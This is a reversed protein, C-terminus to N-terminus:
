GERRAADELIRVASALDPALHVRPADVPPHPTDGNRPVLVAGACGARLALGADRESDGIVWSRALDAGLEDRARWLLGPEPKRCECGHDPAHPCRYAREIQVGASELDGLLRRQFTEFDSEAFIGRGIGSQNTVIALRYGARRLAALAPAVSSLLEYDELRHTYGGDRVLTGDRDLFAFRSM